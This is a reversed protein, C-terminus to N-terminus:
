KLLRCFLTYLVTVTGPNKYPVSSLRLLYNINGIRNNSYVVDCISGIHLSYSSFSINIAYSEIAICM